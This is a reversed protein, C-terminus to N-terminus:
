RAKIERSFLGYHFAFPLASLVMGIMLTILQEINDVISFTSVPKVFGGGTITAFVLSILDILDLEGVDFYYITLFLAITYITFIVTITKILQKFRLIGGGGGLIDKLLLVVKKDPYFLAM